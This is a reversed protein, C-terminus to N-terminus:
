CFLFQNISQTISDPLSAIAQVQKRDRRRTLKLLEEEDYINSIIQFTEIM